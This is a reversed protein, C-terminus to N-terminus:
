PSMKFWFTYILFGAMVVDIVLSITSKVNIGKNRILGMTKFLIFVLFNANLIGLSLYTLLSITNGTEGIFFSFFIAVALTILLVRYAFQERNNWLKVKNDM